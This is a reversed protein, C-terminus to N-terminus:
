VSFGLTSSIIAESAKMITGGGTMAFTMVGRTLRKRGHLPDIGTLV